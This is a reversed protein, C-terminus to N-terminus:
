RFRPAYRRVRISSLEGVDSVTDDALLRAGIVRTVWSGGEGFLGIQARLASCPDFGESSEM